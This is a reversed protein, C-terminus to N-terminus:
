NIKNKGLYTHGELNFNIFPNISHVSCKYNSQILDKTKITQDEITLLWDRYEKWDKWPTESISSYYGKFNSESDILGCDHGILFVNKAGMYAAAHIATTITSKSVILKNHLDSHDIKGTDTNCNHPYVFVSSTNKPIPNFRLKTNGYMHKSILVKSGSSIAEKLLKPDKYVLYDAKIKKYVQNVGVVIREKFFSPNFFDLSKGSAVVYIDCGAHKNKLSSLHGVM